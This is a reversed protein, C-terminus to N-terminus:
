PVIRSGLSSQVPIVHEPAMTHEKVPDRAHNEVTMEDQEEYHIHPAAVIGPSLAFAVVHLPLIPRSTRSRCQALM